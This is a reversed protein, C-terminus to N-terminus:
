VHARGIQEYYYNDDNDDDLGDRRGLISDITGRAIKMEPFVPQIRVNDPLGTAQSATLEALFYTKCNDNFIVELPFNKGDENTDKEQGNWTKRAMTTKIMTTTTALHSALEQQAEHGSRGPTTDCLVYPSFAGAAIRGEGKEGVGTNTMAFDTAAIWM